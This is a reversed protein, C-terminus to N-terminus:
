VLLDGNITGSISVTGGGIYADGNVTGLIQVQSGTAFYDHNVTENRPLVVNQENKAFASPVLLLSFIMLSVLALVKEM